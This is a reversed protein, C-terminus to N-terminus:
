NPETTVLKFVSIVFVWTPFILAVWLNLNIIVLLALALLYTVIVLWRPMLGTRWWITALSIMSVGAMRLAYVNSVQLMLARGFYIIENSLSIQADIRGVALISGAIAMAVFVMALFLLSSGFFVTSFLRDEYEGLRDRVVGIFWLFAVGAFPMLGIALTIKAAGRELWDVEITLGQPVAIRLLTISTAFLLAFLIGAIAAARPTTLKRYKNQNTM